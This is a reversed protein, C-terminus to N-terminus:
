IVMETDEDYLKLFWEPLSVTEIETGYGPWDDTRQCEAFTNIANRALNRGLIMAVEDLEIVNVLYPADKDQVVFLFRPNDDIGLARIGELYFAAQVMYGYNAASKGFSEGDSARATKYDVVLLQQGAVPSRLWDIRARCWVGTLADQWVLSQEPQGSSAKLLATATPHQKIAAAMDLVIQWQRRLLPTKGEARAAEALAKTEAKRWDDAELVVIRDEPDGLVVQHAATGFDFADTSEGGPHDLGYRYKAPGGPEILLRAGTSSLSGGAVPDLHYTAAPMDYVGPRTIVLREDTATM